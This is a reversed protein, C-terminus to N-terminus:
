LERLLERIKIRYEDEGILDEQRLRKLVRLREDLSGSPVVQSPTGVPPPSYAPLAPAPSPAVTVPVSPRPAPAVPPRPLTPRVVPAPPLQDPPYPVKSRPPPANPQERPSPAIVPAPADPAVVTGPAQAAAPSPAAVPAPAAMVRPEVDPPYPVAVTPATPARVARARVRRLADTGSEVEQASVDPPYPVQDREYVKAVAPVAATQAPAPAPLVLWDSRRVGNYLRYEAPGSSVLNLALRSATQRNGVPLDRWDTRQGYAGQDQGAAQVEGFIINLERNHVFVRGTNTLRGNATAGSVTRFVVDQKPKARALGSALHTALTYVERSDFLPRAEVGEQAVHLAQLKQVIQEASFYAPHDNRPAKRTDQKVLRVFQNGEEWVEGRSFALVPLLVLLLALRAATAPLGTRHVPAAAGDAFNRSDHM